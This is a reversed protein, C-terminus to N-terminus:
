RWGTASGSRGSACPAQGGHRRLEARRGLPPLDHGRAEPGDGTADRRAPQGGRRTLHEWPVVHRGQPDEQRPAEAGQVRGERRTPLRHRERPHRGARGCAGRRAAAQRLGLPQRQRGADRGEHEGSPTSRSSSRTARSRWGTIARERARRSRRAGASSAPGNGATKNAEWWSKWLDRDRGFDKDTLKILGHLAASSVRMVEDGVLEVLVDMAAADQLWLANDVAVARTRWGDSAALGALAEVAADRDTYRVQRHAVVRVGEDKDGLPKALLAMAGTGGVRGLAEAAAARVYPSSDDISGAVALAVPDEKYSWLADLATARVEPSSDKNAVAELADLAVATKTRGLAEAVNRRLLDDKKSRIRALVAAADEDTVKDCATVTHDRVYPNKDKLLEALLRMAEPTGIGALARAADSRKFSDADKVQKKLESDIALASGAAALLVALAVLGSRGRRSRM